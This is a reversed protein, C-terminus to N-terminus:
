LLPVVLPALSVPMTGDSLERDAMILRAAELEVMGQTMSGTGRLQPGEDSLVSAEHCRVNRRISTHLATRCPPPSPNATIVSTTHTPRIPLQKDSSFRIVALHVPAEIPRRSRIALRVHPRSLCVCAAHHSPTTTSAPFIIMIPLCFPIFLLIKESSEVCIYRTSMATEDYKRIM